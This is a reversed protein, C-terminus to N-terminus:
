DYLEQVALTPFHRAKNGHPFSVSTQHHYMENVM